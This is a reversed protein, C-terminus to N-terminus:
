GSNTIDIAVDVSGTEPSWPATIRPKSYDFQTYSLGHGFPFLVPKDHTLFYRYGVNLGERYVLQRPHNAFNEQSPSDNLGLPFTEALKGSPSIDGFLLDVLAGAGAQGALYLELVAGAQSLWPM